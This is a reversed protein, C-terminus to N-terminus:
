NQNNNNNNCIKKINTRKKRNVWLNEFENLSDFYNDFKPDFIRINLKMKSVKNLSGFIM